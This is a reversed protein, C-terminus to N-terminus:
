KRRPVAHRANLQDARVVADKYLFRADAAGFFARDFIQWIGNVYRVDFRQQTM